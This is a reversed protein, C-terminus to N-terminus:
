SDLVLWITGKSFDNTHGTPANNTKTARITSSSNNISIILNNLETEDAALQTNLDNVRGNLQNLSYSYQTIEQSFDFRANLKKVIWVAQPWASM